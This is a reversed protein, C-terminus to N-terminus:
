NFNAVKISDFVAIGSISYDTVEGTTSSVNFTVYSGYNSGASHVFGMGMMGGAGRIEQGKKMMEGAKQRMMGDGKEAFVPLALLAVILLVTTIKMLKNM